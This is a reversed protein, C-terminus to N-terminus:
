TLATLSFSTLEISELLYELIFIYQWLISLVQCSVSDTFPRMVQEPARPIVKPPWQTM